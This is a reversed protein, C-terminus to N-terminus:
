LSYNAELTFAVNAHINKNRLSQPSNRELKCCLIIEGHGTEAAIDDSKIKAHTVVISLDANSLCARSGNEVTYNIIKFQQVVNCTPEKSKGKINNGGCFRNEWNTDDECRKNTLRTGSRPPHMVAHAAQEIDPHMVAHAAQEIDQPM